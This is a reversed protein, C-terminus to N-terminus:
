PNDNKCIRATQADHMHKHLITHQNTQHIYTKYAQNYQPILSTYKIKYTLHKPVTHKLFLQVFLYNTM